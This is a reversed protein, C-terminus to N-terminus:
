QRYCCMLCVDIHGASIATGILMACILMACNNCYDEVTYCYIANALFECV